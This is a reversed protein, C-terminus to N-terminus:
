NVLGFFLPLRNEGYLEFNLESINIVKSPLNVINM